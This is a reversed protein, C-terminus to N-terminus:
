ITAFGDVALDGLLSAGSRFSNVRNWDGLAIEVLHIFHKIKSPRKKGAFLFSSRRLRDDGPWRLRSPDSIWVYITEVM